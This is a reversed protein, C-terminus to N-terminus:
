VCRLRPWTGTRGGIEIGRTGHKRYFSPTEERKGRTTIIKGKQSIHLLGKSLSVFDEKQDGLSAVSGKGM